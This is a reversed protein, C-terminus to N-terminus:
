DMALDLPPTRRSVDRLVSQEEALRREIFRREHDTLPTGLLKRYRAINIRHVAQIARDIHATM